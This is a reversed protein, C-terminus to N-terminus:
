WCLKEYKGKMVGIITNLKNKQFTEVSTYYDWKVLFAITIQFTEVMKIFFHSLM